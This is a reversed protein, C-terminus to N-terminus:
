AVIGAPLSTAIASYEVHFRVSPRTPDKSTKMPEALRFKGWVNAIIRDVGDKGRQQIKLWGAVFRDKNKFPTQATGNAIAAAYGQDLEWVIPNTKNLTLLYSDAIVNMETEKGYGGSPLPCIVSNDDSEVEHVMEPVCGLDDWNTLPSVDPFADIAVTIENITAGSRAFACFAGLISNELKLSM